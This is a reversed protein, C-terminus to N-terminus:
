SVFKPKSQCLATALENYAFVDGSTIAFGLTCETPVAGRAMRPWAPAHGERGTVPPVLEQADTTAEQVRRSIRCPFAARSALGLAPQLPCAATYQLIHIPWLPLSQKLRFVATPSSTKERLASSLSLIRLSIRIQLTIATALILQRTM